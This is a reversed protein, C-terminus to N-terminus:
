RFNVTKLDGVSGVFIGTDLSGGATLPATFTGSQSPDTVMQLGFFSLGSGDLISGTTAPLQTLISAPVTFSGASGNALCVFFGTDYIPATATGGAQKGALGIIAVINNGAGTWTPTVSASRNIDTISAKNSWVIPAPMNLRATFAGVDAGGTGAMTYAGAAIVATSGGGGPLGPIGGPLGPTALSKSYSKDAGRPVATNNANPGNLTLQAGADLLNPPLTAALLQDQTSLRRTVVCQGVASAGQTSGFSSLNGISYSAFSGSAIESTTDISGLIPVGGISITQKSLALTGLTLTGGQSIKTLQAESLSPHACANAGNAATAITLVNSVVNGARVSVPVFCGIDVNSPLTFNIQDTGPLGSSRGAYVPVVEQSGVIVRVNSSNTKDGSTGGASDSPADAGLGTGWLVMVQGPRAPALTFSGLTGSAPRNLDILTSSRYEQAQAQGTGSSDASVIGFTSAVVSVRASGSTAGNYTVTLNYDGVAATSPLLGALQNQTTYIMFADVAAGGSVPALRISANGLTTKIPLATNLVVAGGGLNTGLVVFISGQAISSAYSGANGVPNASRLVPQGWSTAACLLTALTFFLRM